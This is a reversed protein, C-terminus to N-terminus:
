RCTICQGLGLGGQRTEDQRTGDLDSLEQREVFEVPVVDRQHHPRRQGSHLASILLHPLVGGQLQHLGHIVVDRRGCSTPNSAHHFVESRTNTYTM